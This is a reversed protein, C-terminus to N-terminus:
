LIADKATVPRCHDELQSRGSITPEKSPNIRGRKTAPKKIGVMKAFPVLLEAKKLEKSTAQKRLRLSM